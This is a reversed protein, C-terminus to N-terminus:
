PALWETPSLSSREWPMVTLADNNCHRCMPHSRRRFTETDDSSAISALPLSDDPEAPMDYGFRRALSHSHAAVQCPWIAGRVLQLYYGGFPCSTFSRARDGAGKPDIALRMFAEKGEATGTVDAALATQVGWEHGLRVLAEYDVRLPYPSILLRINCEALARWFDDSQAQPPARQHM